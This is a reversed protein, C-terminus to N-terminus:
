AMGALAEMAVGHNREVVDIDSRIQRQAAAAAPSHLKRFDGRHGSGGLDVFEM